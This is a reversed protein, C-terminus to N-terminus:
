VHSEAPPTQAAQRRTEILKRLIDAHRAAQDIEFQLHPPPLPQTSLWRAGSIWDELARVASLLAESAERGLEAQLEAPAYAHGDECSARDGNLTVPGSCMPCAILTM